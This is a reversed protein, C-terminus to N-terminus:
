RQIHLSSTKLSDSISIKPIKTWPLSTVDLNSFESTKFGSGTSISFSKNNEVAPEPAKPSSKYDPNEVVTRTGLELVGNELDESTTNIEYVISQKDNDVSSTLTLTSKEGSFNYSAREYNEYSFGRKPDYSFDVKGPLTKSNSFEITEPDPILKADGTFKIESGTSALYKDEVSVRQVVNYEYWAEGSEIYAKGDDSYKVEYSAGFQDKVFGDKNVSGFKADVESKIEWKTAPSNLETSKTVPYTTETGDESIITMIKNNESFTVKKDTGSVKYYVKGHEDVALEVQTTTEAVPNLPFKVPTDGGETTTNDLTTDNSGPFTYEYQVEGTNPDIIEHKENVLYGDRDRLNGEEDMTFPEKGMRPASKLTYGQSTAATVYDNTVVERKLGTGQLNVFRELNRNTFQSVPQFVLNIDAYLPFTDSEKWDLHGATPDKCNVRSFSITCQRIVMNEVTYRGGFVLRFSGKNCIDIERDIMHFGAPPAQWGILKSQELYTAFENIAWEVAKRAKAAGEAKAQDASKSGDGVVYNEGMSYYGGVTEATWKIGDTLWGFHQLDQRRFEVHNGVIYPLILKLQETCPVFKNGQMESFFTTRFNLNNFNVDSGGYYSYRTGQIRLANDGVFNAGQKVKSAFRNVGTNFAGVVEGLVGTNISGSARTILKAAKALKPAIPRFRNYLNEIENGMDNSLWNNVTDLIFDESSFSTLLPTKTYKASWNIGTDDGKYQTTLPPLFDSAEPSYFKNILQTYVDNSTKEKFSKLGKDDPAVWDIRGYQFDNQSKGDSSVTSQFRPIPVTNPHVTVTMTPNVKQIDYYFGHFENTVIDAEKISSSNTSKTEEKKAM